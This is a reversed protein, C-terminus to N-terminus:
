ENYSEIAKAIMSKQTLDSTVYHQLLLNLVENINSKDYVIEKNRNLSLKLKHKKILGPLNSHYEKVNKFGDALIAKTLRQVYRGDGQCDEIFQRTNNLLKSEIIEKSNETIIKHYIDKFDLMSNFNNRNTIYYFDNILIADVNDGIILINKYFPKYEKGNFTGKLSNKYKSALRLHKKFITLSPMDSNKSSIKMVLFDLKDFNIKENLTNEDNYQITIQSLIKESNLVKEKEITQITDDISVELDYNDLKRKNLIRDINDLTNSVAVEISSNSCQFMYTKYSKGKSIPKIVFMIDIQLDKLNKKYHRLIAKLHEISYICKGEEHKIKGIDKMLKGGLNHM